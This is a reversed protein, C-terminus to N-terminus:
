LTSEQFLSRTVKTGHMSVPLQRYSGRMWMHRKCVLIPPPVRVLFPWVLVLILFPSELCTYWCVMGLPFSSHCTAVRPEGPKQPKCCHRAFYRIEEVKDPVQNRAATSGPVVGNSHTNRCLSKPQSYL